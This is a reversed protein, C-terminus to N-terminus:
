FNGKEFSMAITEKILLTEITITLFTCTFLSMTTLTLAFIIIRRVSEEYTVLGDINDIQWVYAKKTFLDIAREFWYLFAIRKQPKPRPSNEKNEHSVRWIIKSLFRVVFSPHIGKSLLNAKWITFNLFKASSNITNGKNNMKGSM